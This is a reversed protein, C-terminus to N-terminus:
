RSGERFNLARVEFPPAAGVAQPFHGDVFGREAAAMWSMGEPITISKLLVLRRAALVVAVRAALSDSTVAWSHPLCGPRGEDARAFAHGDVIAPRGRQWAFRCGEVGEIVVPDIRSLLAALFQANLSLVRLALWHAAEDGLGHRRDLDRVANAAAGGGPVLLIPRTALGRLWHRLRQGLDPLDFLSGGVKVVM